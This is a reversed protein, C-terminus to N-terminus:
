DPILYYCTQEEGTKVRFDIIFYAHLFSAFEKNPRPNSERRSWKFIIHTPHPIRSVNLKM